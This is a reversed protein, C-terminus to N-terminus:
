GSRNDSVLLSYDIIGFTRPDQVIQVHDCRELMHIFTPYPNYPDAPFGISGLSTVTGDGPGTTVEIDPMGGVYWTALAVTSPRPAGRVPYAGANDPTEELQLVLGLASEFAGDANVNWVQQPRTADAVALEAVTGAASCEIAWSSQADVIQFGDGAQTPLFHWAGLNATAGVIKGQATATLGHLPQAWNRIENREVKFVIASTTDKSQGLIFRFGRKFGVSAQGIAEHLEYAREVWKPQLRHGFVSYAARSAIPRSVGAIYVFGEGLTDYHRAPLLQYVSPFSGIFASLFDAPYEIAGSAWERITESVSLWADPALRSIIGQVAAKANSIGGYVDGSLALLAEPTGNMPEGILISANVAQSAHRQYMTAYTLTLLGGMSHGIVNVKDVNAGQRVKEIFDKLRDATVHLDKRWDYPFVIFGKEVPRLEELSNFLASGPARFHDLIPKYIESVGLVSEVAGTPVAEIGDADTGDANLQLSAMRSLSLMALVGVFWGSQGILTLLSAMGAQTATVPPWVQSGNKQLVSGMLGPIFVTMERGKGSKLFSHTASLVGLGVDLLVIRLDASDTLSFAPLQWLTLGSQTDFFEFSFATAGAIPAVLQTTGKKEFTYVARESRPAIEVLRGSVGDRMSNIAIVPM